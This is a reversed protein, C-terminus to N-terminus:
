DYGGVNEDAGKCRMIYADDDADGDTQAILQAQLPTIAYHDANSMGPLRHYIYAFSLDRSEARLADDRVDGSEVM